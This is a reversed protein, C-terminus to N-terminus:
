MELFLNSLVLKSNVNQKLQQQANMVAQSIQYFRKAKVQNNSTAAQHLGSTIVRQLGNILPQLQEKQKGLEDIRVLREYKTATLLSKAEAIAAVLPHDTAQQLLAALLGMEGNALFYAAQVQKETYGQGVFYTTALEKSVPLMILQQSRSRITPKLATIDDTTLIIMTDAPPEELTKLVANQAEVTMTHADPILVIRRIMGEGTTRRSLFDRVKRVEDIGIHLKEPVVSLFYPHLRPDAVGLVEAAISLALTQKGAGMKGSVILAQPKSETLARQQHQTTAHLLLDNM